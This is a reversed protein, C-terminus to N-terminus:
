SNSVWNKAKRWLWMSGKVIVGLAVASGIIIVLYKVLFGLFTKIGEIISSIVTDSSTSDIPIPELPTDPPTIIPVNGSTGGGGSDDGGSPVIKNYLQQEELPKPTPTIIKNKSDTFRLYVLGEAGPEVQLSFVVHGDRFDENHAVNKGQYSSYSINGFQSSSSCANITYGFNLNFDSTDIVYSYYNSGAPYEITYITLDDDCLKSLDFCYRGDEQLSNYFIEYKDKSPVTEDRIEYASISTSVSIFFLCSLLFVKLLRSLSM